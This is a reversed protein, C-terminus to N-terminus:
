PEVVTSRITRDMVEVDTLRPGTIRTVERVEDGFLVLESESPAVGLSIALPNRRSEIWLKAWKQATEADSAELIHEVPYVGDIKCKLIFLM